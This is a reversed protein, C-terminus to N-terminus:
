SRTGSSRWRLRWLRWAIASRRRRPATTAATHRAGVFGQPARACASFTASSRGFSRKSNRETWWGDLWNIVKRSRACLIVELGVRVAAENSHQLLVYLARSVGMVRHLDLVDQQWAKPDIHREVDLLLSSCVEQRVSFGGVHHM